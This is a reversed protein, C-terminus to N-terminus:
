EAKGKWREGPQFSINELCVRLVTMESIDTDVYPEKLSLSASLSLEKRWSEFFPAQLDFTEVVVCHFHSSLYAPITETVLLFTNYRSWLM